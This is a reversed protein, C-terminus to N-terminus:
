DHGYKLPFIEHTGQDKMTTYDLEGGTPSNENHCVVCQAEGVPHVMGAAVVDARKYEKNKLSMQDDAVYASGAGHCMECGVGMLGASTAEDVFGGEKGYGTTHCALCKADTTYDADPDFGAATKTEANNGPRLIDFAKAMRTEAWSKYEKLHCKKCGKIGVYANDAAVSSAVMAIMAALALLCLLNVSRKM